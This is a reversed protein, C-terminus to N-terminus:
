FDIKDPLNHSGYPLGPSEGEIRSVGPYDPLPPMYTMVPHGPPLILMAATDAFGQRFPRRFASRLERPRTRVHENGPDSMLLASLLSSHFDIGEVSSLFETQKDWTCATQGM